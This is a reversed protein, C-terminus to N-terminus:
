AGRVLDRAENLMGELAWAVNSLSEDALQAVDVHGILDAIGASKALLESLRDARDLEDKPTPTNAVSQLAM